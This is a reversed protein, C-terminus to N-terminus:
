ERHRKKCRSADSKLLAHNKEQNSQRGCERFARSPGTSLTNVASVTSGCDSCV